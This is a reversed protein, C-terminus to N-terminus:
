LEKMKERIVEGAEKIMERMGHTYEEIHVEKEFGETREMILILIGDKIKAEVREYNVDPPIKFAKEISREICIDKVKEKEASATSIVPKPICIDHMGKITVLDKGVTVHLKEKPIGPVEAVVLYHHPFKRVQLHGWEM